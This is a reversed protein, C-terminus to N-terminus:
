IIALINNKCIKLTIGNCSLFLPAINNQLVKIYWIQSCFKLMACAEVKVLIKNCNFMNSCNKCTMPCTGQM